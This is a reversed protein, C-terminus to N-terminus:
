YDLECTCKNTCVEYSKCSPNCCSQIKVADKDQASKYYKQTGVYAGFAAVVLVIGIIIKQM